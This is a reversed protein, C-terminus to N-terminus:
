WAFYGRVQICFIIKLLCQHTVACAQKEPQAKILWFIKKAYSFIPLYLGFLIKFVAGIL